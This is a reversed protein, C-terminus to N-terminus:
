GQTRIRRQRGSAIINAEAARNIARMGQGNGCAGSVTPKLPVTPLAVANVLKDLM